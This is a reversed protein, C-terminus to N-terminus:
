AARETRNQDLRSDDCRDVAGSSNILRRLAVVLGRHVFFLRGLLGTGAGALTAADLEM